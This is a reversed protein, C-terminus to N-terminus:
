PCERHTWGTTFPLGAAGSPPASRLPSAASRLQALLSPIVYRLPHLAGAPLSPCILAPVPVSGVVWCGGGLLLQGDVM